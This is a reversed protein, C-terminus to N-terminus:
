IRDKRDLDIKKIEQQWSLLVAEIGKKMFLNLEVRTMYHPKALVDMYVDHCKEVFKVHKNFYRMQEKMLENELRLSEIEIKEAQPTTLKKM